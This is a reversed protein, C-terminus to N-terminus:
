ILQNVLVALMEPWKKLLITRHLRWLRSWDKIEIDFDSGILNYGVFILIM